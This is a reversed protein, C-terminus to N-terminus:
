VGIYRKGTAKAEYGMGDGSERGDEKEGGGKHDRLEIYHDTTVLIPGTSSKSRGDLTTGRPQSKRSRTGMTTSATSAFRSFLASRRLHNRWFLHLATACSVMIIICCELVTTLMANTINSSTSRIQSSQFYLSVVGAILAFSGTLFVLAIGIKNHLAMKLRLVIPLPLVFIVVDVALSLANRSVTTYFTASVCNFLYPVDATHIEPSCWIGTYMASAFFGVATFTMLSYCTYRVWRKVGFTRLFFILLPLKSFYMASTATFICAAALRTIYKISVDTPPSNFAWNMMSSTASYSAVFALAIVCLYDDALFKRSHSYNVWLRIGIIGLTVTCMTIQSSIYNWPPIATPITILDM